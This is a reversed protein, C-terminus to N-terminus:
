SGASLDYTSSCFLTFSGAAREALCYSDYMRYVWFPWFARPVRRFKNLNTKEWCRDPEKGKCSQRRSAPSNGLALEANEIQKQDAHLSGISKSDNLFPRRFQLDSECLMDDDSSTSEDIIDCGYCSDVASHHIRREALSLASEFSEESNSESVNDEDRSRHLKARSANLPRTRSLIHSRLNSFPSLTGFADRPTRLPQDEQIIQVEGCPQFSSFKSWILRQQYLYCPSFLLIM